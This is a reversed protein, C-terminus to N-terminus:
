SNLIQSLNALHLDMMEPDDLDSAAIVVVRIGMSELVSRIYRDKMQVEPSGHIGKSLGDLYVACKVRGDISAYYFDPITHGIKSAPLELRVQAHFENFGKEKLWRALRMEPLNTPEGSDRVAGAQAPARGILEVTGLYANLMEVATNRDLMEHYFSNRYTKMCEYCSKVCAGPCNSLTMKGTQLIESWGELIQDILGSGGPMPDYLLVDVAGDVRPLMLIQLDEQDMELRISAALRVAEALNIAQEGSELDKFLLGDVQSDASLALSTPEIGCSKKHGERFHNIEADSGYPSRTAGCVACIPFGLRGQSVQDAPGVNILRISQGHHHSLEKRDSGQVRYQDIGRHQPKLLGTMFVPMRFRSQEEDSVHSMFVLDLDCMPIAQITQLTDSAYDSPAADQSFVSQTSVDVQYSDPRIEKRDLPLHYYATKFKGGNAYILNGPVYERVALTSPRPLEFSMRLWSTSYAKGVFATVNGQTLAYGPLFGQRALVNLTYNELDNKMLKELYDNCRLLVKRETEELAVVHKSKEALDNKTRRAWEMRKYIDSIHETLRGPMNQVDEQLVSAGVDEAAEEPWNEEFVQNVHTEIAALDGSIIDKLGDVNLPRSRYSNGELIYDRIFKPFITEIAKSRLADAGSGHTSRFLHSLVTAHVHKEIMVPNRMNFRPPSIRGSLIRMPDEFFYEDHVSKRCYTYIVAMRHRRGARGARQWYNSPLPPMNRMLVMDLSGIDVGLELTPTAVICNISGNEKKFEKEIHQREVAPVQATHEKAVLMLFERNLLSINYDDEPPVESNLRGRCHPATCVHNPSDRTHIRGCISCEFRISQAEIGMKASDVQYVGMAGPLPNGKNSTLTVPTLLRWKKTLCEWVDVIFDGQAEEDVGWKAIFGKIATQGKKSLIGTVYTRNDGEERSLKLGKPPFSFFPLFGRQVEEDGERWYHSFIPEVADYLFGSRRFMDLMNEIGDVLDEASIHYKLAISQVNQDQENLGSYVVKAKGWSELNEQRSFSTALERLIAIRLFKNM